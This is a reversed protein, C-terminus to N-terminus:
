KLYNQVSDEKIGMYNCFEELTVMQHKGQQTKEQHRQHNVPITEPKKRNHDPHRASLHL